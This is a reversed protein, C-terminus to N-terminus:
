RMNLDLVICKLLDVAIYKINKKWYNYASFISACLPLTSFTKGKWCYMDLDAGIDFLRITNLAASM